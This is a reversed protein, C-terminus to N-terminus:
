DNNENQAIKGCLCYVILLQFLKASNIRRKIQEVSESNDFTNGHVINHRTQNIDDLFTQWLTRGGNYTKSNLSFKDLKARYPFEKTALHVILESRSLLHALKRDSEFVGDFMSGHLNKFIDSIGFRSCVIKISEPKPNRNKDFLFPEYSIPFHDATSFDIIMENIIRDYNKIVKNDFGLYKKCLTMQIPKSLENFQLNHSLDNVISRTLDKIFGELHAVVLISISRCMVNYLESNSEFNNEAENVLLDVEKWRDNLQLLYEHVFTAM